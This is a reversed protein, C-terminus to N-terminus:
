VARARPHALVTVATGTGPTNAFRVLYTQGAPTTRLCLVAAEAFAWPLYAQGSTTGATGHRKGASAKAGTVVRCSSGCAQVRPVRARDHRAEWLVRSRRQGLGPVTQLGDLPNADHPKATTVMPWELERLRAADHGLWALDGALRQQVAPAPLREAGGDRNAQDASKQGLEPRTDQRTPHQGHTLLAARHRLLPMRRRLLDRTARM